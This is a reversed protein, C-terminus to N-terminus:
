LREKREKFEGYAPTFPVNPLNTPIKSTLKLRPRPQLTKIYSIRKSSLASGLENHLLSPLPNSSFSLAGQKFLFMSMKETANIMQLKM